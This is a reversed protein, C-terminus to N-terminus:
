KLTNLLEQLRGCSSSSETDALHHANFYTIINTKIQPAVQEKKDLSQVWQIYTQDAIPYECHQSPKGTDFDFNKLHNESPLLSHLTYSYHFLITDFSKDFLKEAEATPAKFKLARFPGVKPSIKFLFSLITPFTGPRNYGKGFDKNYERIRMKYHFNRSVNSSDKKEIAGKKAAWASKTIVPIINAITFRFVEVTASLHNKFVKNINLGYTETFAKSLLATDVKFGIIAHYQPSAYNGKAIELVDFAFEMRMHSIKNDAYTVNDGFKRKMKEYVLPVSKNTAMPHGFNDAYYHSLFGIAFAFQNLNQANNLLSKIMDGSRVYHVLNTFFHSGLPYYGMDPTVAGGYAYAHAEKLQDPTANPFKSKLLPVITKDWAADIIAEHSFVGLPKAFFPAACLIAAIFYKIFRM